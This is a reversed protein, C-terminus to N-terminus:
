NDGTIIIDDVYILVTTFGASCRKTFLSYDAISQHFGAHKLALTLTAFWNHSAQKLGHLSKHLRCVCQEAQKGFGTPLRMYVEEKLTGHLFANNVNLQHSPWGQISAVALLCRVTVLKAVPM